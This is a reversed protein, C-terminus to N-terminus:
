PRKMSRSCSWQLLLALCFTPVLRNLLVFDFPKARARTPSYAWDDFALLGSPSRVAHRLCLGFCANACESYVRQRSPSCATPTPSPITRAFFAHKERDARPRGNAFGGFFYVGSHRHRGESPPVFVATHYARSKPARHEFEQEPHSWVCPEGGEHAPKLLHLSNVAGAYGGWIVGGFTILCQGHHESSVATLTVGYVPQPAYGETDVKDWTPGGTDGHTQTLSVVTNSIYNTSM